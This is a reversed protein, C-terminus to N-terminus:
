KTPCTNNSYCCCARSLGLKLPAVKSTLVLDDPQNNLGKKNDM